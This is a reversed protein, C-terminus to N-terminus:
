DGKLLKVADELSLTQENGSALDRLKLEGAKEEVDGIIIAYKMKLSNAHALQNALNRSSINIETAIGKARLASAVRLAYGRNKETVEAIFVKAYGYEISASYDLMDLIRDIGIGIGVAPVPKGAYIGILSDYRGGGAISPGKSDSKAKFEFVIGTYYDLGRMLSFDVVTDGQVSYQALAALMDKLDKTANADGLLKEVYSVKEKNSGSLEALEIIGDVAEDSIGLGSLAESVKEEGIKELKDLARAAGIFLKSDVGLKEFVEEMLLRDNIEIVYDLGVSELVYAGVAIVEADALAKVGGVIDADAQTIERYRLRQPEERRWVKGIQYRKFPMPLEQHMAMYRALSVTLDYRLGLSEDKLEYILKTDEGIANKAKLVSLPEFTPTDITAFGFLQFASEVRKLLENRFLAENPM